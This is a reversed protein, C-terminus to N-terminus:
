VCVCVCVYLCGYMRFMRYYKAHDVELLLNKLMCSVEAPIHQAGGVEQKMGKIHTIAKTRLM